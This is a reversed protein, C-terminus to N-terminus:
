IVATGRPKRVNIGLVLAGRHKLNSFQGKGEPLQSTGVDTEGPGSLVASQKLDDDFYVTGLTSSTNDPDVVDLGGTGDRAGDLVMDLTGVLAEIDFDDSAALNMRYRLRREMEDGRPSMAWPGSQTTIPFLVVLPKVRLDRPETGGAALARREYDFDPSGILIEVDGGWAAVLDTRLMVVLSKSVAEVLRDKTTQTNAM